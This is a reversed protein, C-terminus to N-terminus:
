RKLESKKFREHGTQRSFPSPAPGRRFGGCSQQDDPSGAGGAVPGVGRRLGGGRRRWRRRGWRRDIEGAAPPKGCAAAAAAEHIEAMRGGGGLARNRRFATTRAIEEGAALPSELMARQDDAIVFAFRECLKREGTPTEFTM